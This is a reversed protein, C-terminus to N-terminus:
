GVGPSCSGAHKIAKEILESLQNTATRDTTAENLVPETLRIPNLSTSPKTQDETIVKVETCEPLSVVSGSAALWENLKDARIDSVFAAVIASDSSHDIPCGGCTAKLEGKIIAGGIRSFWENAPSNLLDVEGAVAIKGLREL